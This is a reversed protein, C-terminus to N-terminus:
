KLIGELTRENEKVWLSIEEVIDDPTRQPRWGTVGIVKSHDTLYIPIDAARNQTVRDIEVRNGTYRECLSTLEKLSLSVDRGGGVNYTQGIHDDIRSLQTDILRFLDDVHLIDRVQKGLGGFGIYSLRQMWFHRAIWHVIVGQDVKGFQWPGTLLGCRNVVGKVGYMDVYEQLILESALKTAGYLSRAGDLPFQESFGKQSAGTVDQQDSLEFRTYTEEINLCSITKIPYVRSTSLFIFAATNERALELCNITGMLNTNVLYQPSSNYGALVSPEASCEIIVDSHDLGELDEKNRIDGHVFEVASSKLRAINLESGRRKLNDLCIVSMHPYHRKFSLALSSGVFGCGGTILMRNMM